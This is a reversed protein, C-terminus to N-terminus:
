KSPAQIRPARDDTTPSVANALLRRFWFLSGLVTVLSAAIFAFGAGALGDEGLRWVLIAVFVLNAVVATLLPASPRGFAYLAPDIAFVAVAITTAISILALVPLALLYEPGFVLVILPRGLVLILLTIIGGAAAAIMGSHIVTRRLRAWEGGAVLRAVDPYVSQNLLDIPKALGTGLERAVKFLGAAAPNLLAGVLFTSLQSPILLVSSHLNSLISFRWIGPNDAGLRRMRLDFGTLLARRAAERWGLALAVLAGVLGALLWLALYLPLAGGVAFAIGVGVLRAAPTVAVHKTLLDFRGFLRLMGKPTAIANTLALPAILQAALILRADWGLWQGIPPALLLAAMMAILAAGFDLITGAKVLSQFAAVNGDRLHDVGYRIVAQNSQFAALGTLLQIQALLMSFLGFEVLGLGRAALAFTALQMVGAAVKGTLLLGANALARRLIGSPGKERRASMM